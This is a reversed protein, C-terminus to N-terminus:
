AWSSQGGKSLSFGRREEKKKYQAKGPEVDKLKLEILDRELMFEVLATGFPFRIGTKSRIKRDSVPSEPMQRNPQSGKSSMIHENQRVLSEIREIVNACRVSTEVSFLCSLVHILLWEPTNNGFGSLMKKVEATLLNKYGQSEAEDATNKKDYPLIKIRSLNDENKDVKFMGKLYDKACPLDSSIFLKMLNPQNHYISEDHYSMTLSEIEHQLAQLGAYNLKEKKGEELKQYVLDKYERKVKFPTDYFVKQSFAEQIRSEEDKSVEASSSGSSVEKKKHVLLLDEFVKTWFSILLLRDKEGVPLVNVFHSIWSLDLVPNSEKMPPFKKM